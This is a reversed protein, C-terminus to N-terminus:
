ELAGIYKEFMYKTIKKLEKGNDPNTGDMTFFDITNNQKSYWIKDLSHATLTDPRTIKKFHNVKLLDIAFLTHISKADCNEPIYQEGNWYMCQKTETIKESFNQPTSVTNQPTYIVTQVKPDEENATIAQEPNKVFLNPSIKEPEDKKYIKNGVLYSGLLMVGIIGLNSQKTLFEPITFIPKNTINIIINSLKESFSEENKDVHIKVTTFEANNESKKFTRSFDAFNEYGIYQSMKDLREPEINREINGDVYDEYYRIFTKDSIDYCKLNDIFYLNLYLALGSKTQKGSEEKAQKFVENILLKRKSM